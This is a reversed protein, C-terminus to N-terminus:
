RLSDCLVEVFREPEEVFPQHGSRGFLRMTATPLRVDSWLAHPAVYDYRGQAILIPVRLSDSGVTVDWSPALTGMLHALFDTNTDAEAYLPAADFHPDYFRMPTQALVAQAPSANPGLKALNEALLRKREPSADQEFFALQQARLWVMDGRPPTGVLVVQGVHASRRGCELAVLGLISHGLVAVRDAGLHLCLQELEGAVEAFSPQGRLAVFVMHFHEDLQAPMQREYPRTGIGSLVVCVPGRGRETYDLM